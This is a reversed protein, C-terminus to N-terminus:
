QFLVEVIPSGVYDYKECNALYKRSTDEVKELVIQTTNMAATSNKYEELRQKEILENSLVSALANVVNMDPIDEDTVSTLYPQSIKRFM